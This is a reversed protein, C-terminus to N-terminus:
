ANLRRRRRRLSPEVETFFGARAAPIACSVAISPPRLPSPTQIVNRVPHRWLSEIIAEKIIFIIVAIGIIIIIIIIVFATWVLGVGNFDAGLSPPPPPRARDICVCFTLVFSLGEFFSPPLLGGEAM